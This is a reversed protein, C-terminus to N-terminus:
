SKVEILGAARLLADRQCRCVAGKRVPAELEKAMRFRPCGEVHSRLAVNLAVGHLRQLMQWEYESVIRQESM